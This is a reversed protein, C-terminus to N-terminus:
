CQTDPLQTHSWDEHEPHQALSPVQWVLPLVVQPAGPAAHTSQVWVPLVQEPPAHSHPAVAAHGDPSCQTDPPQTHSELEHAPHQAESLVQWVLASVVQPTGPPEQESQVRVPLVQEAPAHVQPPVVVHGEPSCQADPPQTQSEDHEPHQPESPAHWVLPSVVQPPEPPAHTSQVWVACVQLPRRTRNRSSPRVAGRALM